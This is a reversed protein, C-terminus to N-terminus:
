MAWRLLLMCPRKVMRYVSLYSLAFPELFEFRATANSGSNPTAGQVQSPPGSWETHSSGRGRDERRSSRFSAAHDWVLGTVFFIPTLFAYSIM